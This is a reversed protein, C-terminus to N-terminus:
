IESLKWHNNVQIEVMNRKIKLSSDRLDTIIKLQRISNYKERTITSSYYNNSTHLKIAQKDAYRGPGVYFSFLSPTSNPAFRHWPTLFDTM